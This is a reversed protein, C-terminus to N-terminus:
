KRTYIKERELVEIKIELEQKKSSLFAIVVFQVVIIFGCIALFIEAM